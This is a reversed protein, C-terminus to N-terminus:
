KVFRNLIITILASLFIFGIISQFSLWLMGFNSTAQFQSDVLKTTADLTYYFNSSVNVTNKDYVSISLDKTLLEYKAWNMYNIIFFLLFIASFSFIFNRLRLGYGFFYRYLWSLPYQRIFSLLSIKYPESNWFKNIALRDQWKKFNYEAKRRFDSQGEDISNNILQQFLHVAINAQGIKNFCGSFNGPNIYTKSIKIKHTNCNKFKCNHFECNEIDTGIFLIDEFTCNIFVVRDLKTKSFSVNNFSTDRIKFKAFPSLPKLSDPEFLVSRLDKSRNLHDAFEKETKFTQYPENLKFFNTLM